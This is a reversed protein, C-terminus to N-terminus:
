SKKFRPNKMLQLSFSCNDFYPSVLDARFMINMSSLFSISALGRKLSLSTNGENFADRNRVSILWLYPQQNQEVKVESPVSYVIIM